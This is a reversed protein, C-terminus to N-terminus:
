LNRGIAINNAIRILLFSYFAINKTIDHLSIQDAQDNKSLRRADKKRVFVQEGISLCTLFSFFLLYARRMGDFQMAADQESRVKDPHEGSTWGVRGSREASTQQRSKSCYRDAQKHLAFRTVALCVASFLGGKEAEGVDPITRSCSRSWVFNRRNIEMVQM